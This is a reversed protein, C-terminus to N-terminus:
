WIQVKATAGSTSAVLYLDTGDFMPDQWWILAGSTMQLNVGVASRGLLHPISFNGAEAATVTIWGGIATAQEVATVATASATVVGVLADGANAAVASSQYYFGSASSYFLYSTASVPAAGPSPQAISFRQGQAYLVGAALGPTVGTGISLTFGSFVGNLGLDGVISGGSTGIVANLLTMNGDMDSEYGLSGHQPQVVGNSLVTRVIAM